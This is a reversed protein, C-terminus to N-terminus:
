IDTLIVYEKEGDDFDDSVHWEINTYNNSSTNGNLM